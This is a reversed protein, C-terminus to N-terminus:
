IVKIKLNPLSLNFTRDQSFFSFLSCQSFIFKCSECCILFLLLIWLDTEQHRRQSRIEGRILLKAHTIGTQVNSYDGSRRKDTIYGCHDRRQDTIYGCVLSFTTIKSHYCSKRSSNSNLVM